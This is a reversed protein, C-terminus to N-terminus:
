NATFGDGKAASLFASWGAQGVMLVVAKNKSDRVRDFTEPVEVCDSTSGSRSSKRWRLPAPHTM